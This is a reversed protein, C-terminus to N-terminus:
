INQFDRTDRSKDNRKQIERKTFVLMQFLFIERQSYKKKVEEGRWQGEEKENNETHLMKKTQKTEEKTQQKQGKKTRIKITERHHRKTGKQLDETKRLKERKERKEQDWKEKFRKWINKSTGKTDQNTM